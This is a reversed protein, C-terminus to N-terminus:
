DDGMIASVAPVLIALVLAKKVGVMGVRRMKIQKIMAKEQSEPFLRLSM